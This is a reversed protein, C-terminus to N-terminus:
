LQSNWLAKLERTFNSVTNRLSFNVTIKHKWIQNTCVLIIKSIAKPNGSVSSYERPNVSVMQISPSNHMPVGLKNLVTVINFALWTLSILSLVRFVWGNSMTYVCKATWKFQYTFLITIQIETSSIKNLLILDSFTFFTNDWFLTRVSSISTRRRM